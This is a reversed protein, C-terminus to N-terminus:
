EGSDGLLRSRRIRRDPDVENAISRARELV